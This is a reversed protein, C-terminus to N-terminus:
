PLPRVGDRDWACRGLVYTQRVARDDGLVQLAFLREALTAGATRRALLPTAKDVLVVFDAEQGEALMGVDADVHLLRASGGTALWLARFPDLRYGKFLGAQYAIGANHLLSLSTGAGIDSGLGLRVGLREAQAFDFMGSGLFLNSSPCVAVGAGSQALRECSRDPLHVGHAFVSRDTVLGFRDYADLYDAADPFRAAVEAIERTNEALHTHLLVGPHDALLKGASELQEDSSTLAFRPTVAYTLRGKGHWRRILDASEDMGSQPTDKLGEPGLDMLVKGCAMRLNRAQAAAFFADVSAAHVTGFVLASTTGHRLLEDLFAEAVASAHAPDAFAQEAPFIHRELWDLLQEGHSAIRDLQPYHVHADIFGPVILGDLDTVSLGPFRPSVQSFAGRAVIRGDEVVLLGDTDHRLADPAEAPDHALSLIEGRFGQLTM